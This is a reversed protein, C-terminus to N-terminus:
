QNQREYLEKIHSIKMESFVRNARGTFLEIVELMDGMTFHERLFIKEVELVVRSIKERHEKQQKAEEDMLRASPPISDSM